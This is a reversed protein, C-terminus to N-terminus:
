VVILNVKIEAKSQLISFANIETSGVPASLTCHVMMELAHNQLVM